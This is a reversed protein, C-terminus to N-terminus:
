FGLLAFEPFPHNGLRVVMCVPALLLRLRVYLYDVMNFGRYKLSVIFRVEEECIPLKHKPLARATGLGM